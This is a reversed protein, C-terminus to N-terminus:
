YGWEPCDRIDVYYGDSNWRYGSYEDRAGWGLISGDENLHYNCIIYYQNGVCNPVSIIFNIKDDKVLFNRDAGVTPRGDVNKYEKIVWNITDGSQSPKSSEVKSSEPKSSTQPKSEVKSTEPKSSTQPKSEVKSTQPKSEVKSTQPKSSEVKSSQQTSTESVKHSEEVPLKTVESDENNNNNVSSEAASTEPESSVVSSEAVTKQKIYKDYDAILANIRSTYEKIQNEAFIVDKGKTIDSLVSTLKTKATKVTSVAAKNKSTDVTSNKIENDYYEAFYKRMYSLTEDIDKKTDETVSEQIEKDNVTNDCFDKLVSYKQNYDKANDFNEKFKNCDIKSTEVSSVSVESLVSVESSVATESSEEKKDESGNNCGTFILCVAILLVAVFNYKTM